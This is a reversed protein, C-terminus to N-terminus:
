YNLERNLEVLLSVNLQEIVEYSNLRAVTEKVWKSRLDKRSRAEDKISDTGAILSKKIGSILAAVKGGRGSGSTSALSDLSPIVIKATEFIIFRNHIWLWDIAAEGVSNGFEAIGKSLLIQLSTVTAQTMNVAVEALGLIVECSWKEAETVELLVEKDELHTKLREVFAARKERDSLAELISEKLMFAKVWKGGQRPGISYKEEVSKDGLKLVGQLLQYDRNDIWKIDIMQPNIGLGDTKLSTLRGVRKAEICLIGKGISNTLRKGFETIGHIQSFSGAQYAAKVYKPTQVANMDYIERTAILTKFVPLLTSVRTMLHHSLMDIQINKISLHTYNIQAEKFCGIYLYLRVLWLRVYFQHKDRSAATELIVILTMIIDKEAIKSSSPRSELIWQVALLLLDDGYFYETDVKNVLTSLLANYLNINDLVYSVATPQMIYVFKRTNVLVNLQDYTANGLTGSFQSTKSELFELWKDSDLSGIFPKLDEFACQKRGYKEFYAKAAELVDGSISAYYVAALAGNRTSSKEALLTEYETTVAAHQLKHAAIAMQKWSEYDDRLETFITKKAVSFVVDWKESLIAVELRLVALELNNWKETEEDILFTLLEEQATVGATKLIRAKLIAEEATVAEGAVAIMRKALGGFLMKEMDTADDQTAALYCSAACWLTYERKSGFSKQLAM